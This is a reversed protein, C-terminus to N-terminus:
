SLRKPETALGDIHNPSTGTTDTRSLVNADFKKHESHAKRSM